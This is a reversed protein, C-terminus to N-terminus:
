GACGDKKAYLVLRQDPTPIRQSRGLYLPRHTHEDFVALYHYAGRSAM